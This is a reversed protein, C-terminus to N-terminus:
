EINEVIDGMTKDYHKDYFYSRLCDNEDISKRGKNPFTVYIPHKKERKFYSFVHMLTSQHPVVIPQVGRIEAHDEYRNLSRFLTTYPFLTSRTPHPIRTM